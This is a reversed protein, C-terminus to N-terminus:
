MPAGCLYMAAYARWPRWHETGRPFRAAAVPFADPEAFARMAIYEAMPRSIGPVARARAIADQLNMSAAFTLDGNLVAGALARIASAREDRIGAAALDAEALDEPGPFLHTLDGMSTKVPRGFMRALRALAAKPATGTLREGLIARVAAEFGDWIGPVRLGPNAALLPKLTRDRSLQSAIQFPDATLDFIRRVREVVKMLSEYGPLEINVLLQREAADQRIEIAGTAGDIEITRRYAGSEVSEVGSIARSALFSLLASWHFPPRYALRILFGPYGASAQSVNRGQRLESPSEGTTTLMAHNFQRISRFGAYGALRTIPLDTEEILKRAFHARRTTAIRIPSAGLHEVFLRRLHRSGLGVRDALDEVNGNDLAGEAILRM